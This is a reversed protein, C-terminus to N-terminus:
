FVDNTFSKFQIDFDLKGTFVKFDAESMRVGAKGMKYYCTVKEKLKIDKCEVDDTTPELSNCNHETKFKRQEAKVPKFM